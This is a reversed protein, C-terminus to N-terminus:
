HPCVHESFTFRLIQAPVCGPARGGMMKFQPKTNEFRGTNICVQVFRPGEVYIHRLWQEMSCGYFLRRERVVEHSVIVTHAQDLQATVRGGHIQFRTNLLCEFPSLFSADIKRTLVRKQGPSLTSDLWFRVPAGDRLFIQLVPADDQFVEPDSDSM